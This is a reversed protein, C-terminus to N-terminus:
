TLLGANRRGISEAKYALKSSSLAVFDMDDNALEFVPVDERDGLARQFVAVYGKGTQNSAFLVTQSNPSWVPESETAPNTTLPSTVGTSIELTWIDQGPEGPEGRTFAVRKEDPSLTFGNVRGSLGLNELRRGQRDFWALQGIRASSDSRYVLTGTSSVAFAGNGFGTGYTTREALRVPDGQLTLRTADFAQAFLTGQRHFLLFGPPAYVAKSQATMLRTKLDSDLAGIYIARNEPNTSWALYLFHRGDPLFHPWVHAIEQLSTDLTTIRTLGGGSASVRSLAGGDSCIIVDDRNWTGSGCRALSQPPGGSADVRKLTYNPSAGSEFGIHRSDPSWFANSANETGALPRANVSDFRVYTCCLGATMLELSTPSRAVTQRSPSRTPM